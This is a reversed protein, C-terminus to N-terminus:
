QMPTTLHFRPNLVYRIPTLLSYMNWVVASSALAAAVLNPYAFLRLVRAPNVMGWLVRARQRPSYGELDDVKRHHITEPLFPTFTFLAALGSLGTQLWFIVRWSTYTVIIGGIFPGLAPGILTGSLFWGLATARETPRYIDSSITLTNDGIGHV